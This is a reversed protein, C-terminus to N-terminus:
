RSGMPQYDRSPDLVLERLLEGDESVIRVDRGSVLMLVRTRAHRRGVKIHHLRSDHRLTVAGGEDIRDRRVRCHVPIRMGSPTAKPRGAYAEAPTRRGIARHPRVENYYARFADLQAQLEILSRARPQKRLWRKLTQHFREVKGCTQPHYPTSHLLRIGLLDCEVEIACRGGGRHLGAAGHFSGVVDAAKFVARADSAVLFRSHDDLANLIEVDSGDGLTWHTIDAQWRENPMQAEFRCFSSRPRKQPQPTVFGRRHLVRWITSVAPARGHRRELHFAITHAGADLGREELDKRLEVIEQELEEAIRHPSARPRRSRPELGAEGEAQFRRVLEHVWRRSVGYDRAVAAKPRGEVLVGTVVLRALSM